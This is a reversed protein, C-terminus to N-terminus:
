FGLTLVYPFEVTVPDGNFRPFKWTAVRKVTCQGMSSNKYKATNIAAETVKGTAEITIQVDMRGNLKEGKRFAETLCLKMSSQKEAIVKQIADRTLGDPLDATQIRDPAKLRPTAAQKQDDQFLDQAMQRQQESLETEEKIGETVPTNTGSRQTRKKPSADQPASDNLGLLKRQLAERKEPDTERALKSKTREVVRDKNPDEFGTLEYAFGMGPITYVGMVDLAIIGGLAGLVAVGIFASIIHNRRRKFIGATAMFVRTEEGPPADHYTPANGAKEDSAPHQSMAGTGEPDLSGPGDDVPQFADDGLFPPTSSDSADLGAAAAIDAIPRVETRAKYFEDSSEVARDDSELSFRSEGSTTKKANFIATSESNSSTASDFPSYDGTDHDHETTLASSPGVQSTGEDDLAPDTEAAASAKAIHEHLTRADMMATSESFMDSNESQSPTTMPDVRSQHLHEQLASADMMATSEDFGSSPGVGRQLEPVDSIRAWDEMGQKWVFSKSDVTGDDLMGNIAAVNLPGRQEGAVLVYWQGVAVQESAARSRLENLENLSVVATAGVDERLPQPSLPEPSTSPSSVAAQQQLESLEGIAAVRTSAASDELEPMAAPAPTERKRKLRIATGCVKCKFKVSAGAPVKEDAISYRTKCNPCAFKM